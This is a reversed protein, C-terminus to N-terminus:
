SWNYQKLKTDYEMYVGSLLSIKYKLIEIDDVNGSAPAKAAYLTSTQGPQIAENSSLQITEQTDKLQIDLMLRTITEKSNNTYNVELTQEAGNNVINFTLPIKDIRLPLEKVIPEIKNEKKNNKIVFFTGLGGIALIVILLLIWYKKLKEKCEDSLDFGYKEFYYTLNINLVESSYTALIDKKQQYNNPSPKRKRYLSELEAWYTDKKLQLQWFM